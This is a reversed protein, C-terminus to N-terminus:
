RSYFNNNQEMKLLFRLKTEEMALLIASWVGDHTNGGVSTRLAEGGITPGLINGIYTTIFQNNFDTIAISIYSASGLVVYTGFFQNNNISIKGDLFIADFSYTKSSGWEQTFMWTGSLNKM